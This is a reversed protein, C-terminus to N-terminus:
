IALVLFLSFDTTGPRGMKVWEWIFWGNKPVLVAMERFASPATAIQAVLAQAFKAEASTMGHRAGAKRAVLGAVQLPGHTAMALHHPFNM